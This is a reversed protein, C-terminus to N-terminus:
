GRKKKRETVLYVVTYGVLFAVFVAMAYYMGQQMPRKLVFFTGLAVIPGLYNLLKM